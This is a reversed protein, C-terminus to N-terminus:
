ERRLAEVPELAAAMSAPYLGAVIGCLALAIVAVAASWPVLHPPDFGPVPTALTNLLAMLGAAGAVGLLGSLGTLTLGELFFQVMISRRTAGLAKRLGIERTRESVSVLMINVIGVAGLALTIAGVGGLFIDMGDFIKGVMQESQITDWEDFADPSSADFGHRQAVISHAELKARANDGRTAPQYQISTLADKPINQGAMAFLNLMTTLPIYVQQNVGDDNGRGSKKELGVVTFGYGNLLVTQGMPSHGPFLLAASKPGLVIVQRLEREDGDNLWRGQDMPLFRVTSWNPQVGMVSGGATEYDSVQKIDGRRLLATVGRVDPAQARIAEADGLTLKYPRLGTTQGGVAPVNGAWMMIVDNGIEALGRKNGSRFGEGLGVLLLLSGV